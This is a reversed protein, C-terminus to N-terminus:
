YTLSAIIQSIIQAENDYGATAPHVNDNSRMWGYNVANRFSLHEKRIDIVGVNNSDALSYMAAVYADQNSTLGTSGNDYPPTLFIFDSGAAKVATILTQMDTTCNAVSRSNRWSNVLGCEAIVLKPPYLALQQLRGSSPTGTNDIMDSSTGGSIGWQRQIIQRKTSTYCEIGYIRVFGAVWALQINHSSIAGLNITAKVITNSGVTTIQTAAGGDVSWSFTRGATSDQYYIDARDCATTTIYNFTGAATPFELEAGGQCPVATGFATASGNPVVRSDRLVYDNFTNGSIGYWNDASSSIGWNNLYDAVKMPMAYRSYQFNYPVAGEDVGRMTSDGMYAIAVNSTSNRYATRFNTTNEPKINYSFALGVPAAPAVSVSITKSRAM